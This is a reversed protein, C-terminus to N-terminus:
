VRGQWISPDRRSHFVSLVRIRTPEERYYVCYPFRPVVAMRVGAFVMPYLQPNAAIRNFVDRVQTAFAVGLGARRAEYWDFADDFEAQAEARLAVPLSM